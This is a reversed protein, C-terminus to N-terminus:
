VVSKCNNLLFEEIIEYSSKKGKKVEFECFQGVMQIVTELYGIIKKQGLRSHSWIEKAKRTLLNSVKMMSLKILGNEMFRHLMGWLLKSQISLWILKAYLMCEFRAQKMPKVEDLEGYSKWTKFILEIQWRLRYIEQVARHSLRGKEVNTMFVNFWMRTKKVKSLKRGKKKAEREAKKLRQEYVQQPVKEILLRIPYKKEGLYAQYEMQHLSNRGMKGVLKEFDVKEYEGQEKKLYVHEVNTPLKSIFFAEQRAIGEPMDLNVYGLDRVILEGPNIEGLTDVANKKDQDNFAHISLDCIEGRLMDYEFQLRIAAKSGSGGSGPYTDAYAEPLQFCTSDKIKVAAFGKCPLEPVPGCFLERLITELVTKFFMIAPSDFRQDLGQKSITVGYQEYLDQCLNILSLEKASRSQSIIVSLFDYGNLKSSRLKFGSETAM